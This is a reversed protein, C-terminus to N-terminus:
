QRYRWDLRQRVVLPTSGNDLMDYERILDECRASEELTRPPRTEHRYYSYAMASHQGVHAYCTLEVGPAGAYPMALLAAGISDIRPVVVVCEKTYRDRIM